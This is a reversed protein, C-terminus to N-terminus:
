SETVVPDEEDIVPEPDLVPEPEPVAEWALEEENWFYDGGDEPYPIPAEWLLSIEDWVWSEYEKPPYPTEIDFSFSFSEEGVFSFECTYTTKPLLDNIRDIFSAGNWTSLLKAQESSSEFVVGDGEKVIYSFSIDQSNNRSSKGYVRIYLEAGYFYPEGTISFLRKDLNVSLEM